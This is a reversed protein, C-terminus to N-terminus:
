PDPFYHEEHARACARVEGMLGLVFDSGGCVSMAARGGDYYSWWMVVEVM